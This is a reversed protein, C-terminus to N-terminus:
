LRQFRVTISRHFLWVHFVSKSAVPSSNSAAKTSHLHNRYSLTVIVRALSLSFALLRRLWASSSEGLCSGLAVIVEPTKRRKGRPDEAEGRRKHGAAKNAGLSKRLRKNPQSLRHGAPNQRSRLLLLIVHSSIRTTASSPWGSRRSIIPPARFLSAALGLCFHIGYDIFGFSNCHNRFRFGFFALDLRSRSRVM